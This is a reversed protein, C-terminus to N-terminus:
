DQCEGTREIAGPQNGHSACYLKHIVYNSVPCSCLCFVTLPAFYFPFILDYPSLQQLFCKLTSHIGQKEQCVGPPTQAAVAYDHQKDM